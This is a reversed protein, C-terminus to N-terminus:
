LDRPLSRRAIEERKPKYLLVDLEQGHRSAHQVKMEGSNNRYWGYKSGMFTAPDWYDFSHETFYHHHSPDTFSNPTQWHTTHIHITGGPKLVRYMENMVPVVHVFHEIIDVAEIHDFYADPAWEWPTRELNCVIDTADTEVYDVNVADPIRTSGCGMHLITKGELVSPDVEVEDQERLVERILEKIQEKDM